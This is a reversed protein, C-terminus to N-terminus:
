RAGGCMVRMADMAADTNVPKDNWCEWPIAPKAEVPVVVSGCFDCVGPAFYLTDPCTPCTHSPTM